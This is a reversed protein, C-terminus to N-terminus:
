RVMVPLHSSLTCRQGGVIIQLYTSSQMTSAHHTYVQLGQRFKVVEDTHM